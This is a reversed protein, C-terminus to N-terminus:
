LIVKKRRTKSEFKMQQGTMIRDCLAEGCFTNFKKTDLNTTIITGRNTWQMRTNIVDMFFSMFGPSVDSTGFDDIVLLSCNNIQQAFNNIKENKFNDLWNSLMQKQTTFVCSSNQRTFLECTAMSSFTKGSGPDGEMLIIGRPKDAFKRLYDVKGSSQQIDEFKVNHNIDGIGNIECFLAWEVARRMTVPTTTARQTNEKSNTVCDGKACIWVRKGDLKPDVLPTYHEKGDCIMCKLSTSLTPTDLKRYGGLVSIMEVMKGTSPAPLTEKAISSLTKM